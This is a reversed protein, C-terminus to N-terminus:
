KDTYSVSIYTFGNDKLRITYVSIGHATSTDSSPDDMTYNNVTLRITNKNVVEKKVLKDNSGAPEAAIIKLMKTKKDYKYFGENDGKSPTFKADPLYMKITEVFNDLSIKYYGDNDLVPKKSLQKDTNVLFAYFKILDLSSIDKVKSFSLNGMYTFFNQTYIQTLNDDSLSVTEDALSKCAKISVPTGCTTMNSIGSKDLTVSKSHYVKSTAAFVATSNVTLISILSLVVIIRKKMKNRRKTM